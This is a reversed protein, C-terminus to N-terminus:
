TPSESSQSRRSTRLFSSTGDSRRPPGSRRPQVVQSAPRVGASSGDSKVKFGSATDPHDPRLGNGSPRKLTPTQQHSLDTTGCQEPLEIGHAVFRDLAGRHEALHAAVGVDLQHVPDVLDQLERVRVQVADDALEVHLRRTQCLVQGLREVPQRPARGRDGVQRRVHFLRDLAAPDVSSEHEPFRLDAGPVQDDTDQLGRPESVGEQRDRPFEVLHFEVGQGVAEALHHASRRLLRESRGVPEPDAAPRRRALGARRHRGGLHALLLRQLLKRDVQRFLRALPLQIRDDAPVVLDPLDDVDQHSPALVIRDERALGADALRGHHLAEGQTDDGAVHRRRELLDRQPRQVDPQQLRPGAHFPLELVAQALHDLLHLRGGPRDDQEDVLGVREDAGAARGPCPVGRVEQLRRQRAAGQARDGGRGPRLVLLVELLVRRQRAAELHDLHVLRGLVFGDQHHASQGRGHLLM